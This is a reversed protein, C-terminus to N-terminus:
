SLNFHSYDYCDQYDNLNTPKIYYYTNSYKMKKLWIYPSKGYFYCKKIRIIKNYVLEDNYIYNTKKLRLLDSKIFNHIKLWQNENKKMIFACNIIYNQIEYPIEM